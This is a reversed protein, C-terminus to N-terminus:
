DRPGKAEAASEASRFLEAAAAAGLSLSSGLVLLAAATQQLGKISIM